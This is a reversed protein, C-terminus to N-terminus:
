IEYSGTVLVKVAKTNAITSFSRFVITTGGDDIYAIPNSWTTDALEQSQLATLTDNDKPLVPLSITLATADNADTASYYFTFHCIGDIIKYRAKTVVSGEPTGTTWTLTPIWSTWLSSKVIGNRVDELHNRIDKVADTLGQQRAGVIFNGQHSPDQTSDSSEGNSSLFLTNKTINAFTTTGGGVKYIVSLEAVATSLTLYEGDNLIYGTTSDNTGTGSQQWNTTGTLIDVSPNTEQSNDLKLPTYGISVASADTCELCPVVVRYENTFKTKRYYVRTAVSPLKVTETFQNTGIPYIIGQPTSSTDLDAEINRLCFYMKANTIDGYGRIYFTNLGNCLTIISVESTYATNNVKSTLNVWNINDTSIQLLTKDNGYIYSEIKLGKIPLVTNVKYTLYRETAGIASEYRTVNVIGWGNIGSNVTTLGGDSAAYVDNCGSLLLAETTLKNGWEYKGNDLDIISNSLLGDSSNAKLETKIGNCIVTFGETKKAYRQIYSATELDDSTNAKCTPTGTTASAYLHFHLAGSAWINPVDFYQMAGTAISAALIKKWAVIVNAATHVVLNWDVATGSAIPWIGIQTTYKKTPTFTQIHTAGENVANTLAYTNTYAGGIDLSNDINDTSTVAQLVPRIKEAVKGTFTTDTVVEELTVDDFWAQSVTGAVSNQLAIRGFVADNDSTFTVTLVTWDNTTSLKSTSVTTGVVAASDYQILDAWVGSAGVLNTKAQLTLKYVTSVKLPIAELSLIPLTVGSTNYVVGGGSTDIAELKLSATDKYAVATDLEASMQGADESLYWGSNVGIVGSATVATDKTGLEFGGNFVGGKSATSIKLDTPVLDSLKNNFTTWDTGTLVGTVSTSSTPLASVLTGGNVTPLNTIELNTFWGKVIRTGTAAISVAGLIDGTMTGGALPLYNGLIALTTPISAHSPTTAGMYVTVIQANTRPATGTRVTLLKIVIRDGAVLTLPETLHTHVSYLASSTSLVPLSSTDSGLQTEAAGTRKYVQVKIQYLFDTNAVGGVKAYFHTDIQGESITVAGPTNVLTVWEDLAQGDATGNATVSTQAADNVTALLKYGAIDASAANALYWQLSSPIASELTQLNVADTPNTPDPVTVTGTFTPDALPAKDNFTTWNAATLLGRNVASSSPLNFTHTATASAIAFDTGASGVAFLQTVPTLGNLSSIGAGTTIVASVKLRGTTPDVLLRRIEANADDTVGTLTKKYNNDIKANESAM